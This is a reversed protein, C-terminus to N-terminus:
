CSAVDGDLDFGLAWCQREMTNKIVSECEACVASGRQRPNSCRASVKHLTAACQGANCARCQRALIVRPPDLLDRDQPRTYMATIFNVTGVPIFVQCRECRRGTEDIDYLHTM